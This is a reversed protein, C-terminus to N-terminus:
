ARAIGPSVTATSTGFRFPAAAATAAPAWLIVMGSDADSVWLRFFTRRVCAWISSSTRPM